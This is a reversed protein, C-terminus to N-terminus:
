QAHGALGRNEVTLLLKQRDRRVGLVALLLIATAKRDVRVRMVARDLILCAANESTLDRRCWPKLVTGVMRRTRSVVGRGFAWCWVLDALGSQARCMDSDALCADAIPSRGQPDAARPAM